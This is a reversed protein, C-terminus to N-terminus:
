GEEKKKWAPHKFIALIVKDGRLQNTTPLHGRPADTNWTFASPYRAFSGGTRWEIRDWLLNFNKGLSLWLKRQVSFGFKGGSYVRWLLDIMQFDHEPFKEVETFYLWKRKVASPGALEWMKRVTLLDAELYDGEILKDQIPQFDVGRTSTLEVVGDPFEQQLFLLNDSNENQHLVQMIRGMVPTPEEDQQSLLYDRLCKFGLEGKNVLAPIEALQKKPTLASFDQLLDSTAEM